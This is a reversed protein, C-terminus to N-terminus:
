DGQDQKLERLEAAKVKRKDERRCRDITATSVRRKFGGKARGYVYTFGDNNIMRDGMMKKWYISKKMGGGVNATQRHPFDKRKQKQKRNNRWFKHPYM